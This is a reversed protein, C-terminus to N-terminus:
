LDRRSLRADVYKDIIGAVYEGGPPHRRVAEFAREGGIMHRVEDQGMFQALAQDRGGRGADDVRGRGGMDTVREIEVVQLECPSVAEPSGITAGLEGVNEEGAFKCAAEGAGAYRCVAKMWPEHRGTEALAVAANKSGHDAEDHQKRARRF